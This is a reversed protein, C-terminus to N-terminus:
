DGEACGGTVWDDLLRKEQETLRPDNAFHGPPADAHWPPMRGQRVVERMTEAWALTEDYTTLPFPAIQGTRHCAQCHQQLLPAVHQSYTVEGRIPLRRARDIVCGAAVTEPHSVPKGALLEELAAALDRRTPAPRQVGPTYQDDIRGRYRVARQQDLVFVEAIR